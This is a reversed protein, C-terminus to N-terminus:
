HIWVLRRHCLIIIRSFAHIQSRFAKREFEVEKGHHVVSSLAVDKRRQKVMQWM